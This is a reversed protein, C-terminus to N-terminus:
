RRRLPPSLSPNAPPAADPPNGVTIVTTTTAVEGFSNTVRLTLTYTGALAYTHTYTGTGSGPQSTTFSTIDGHDIFILLNGNEPTVASYTIAITLPLDPFQSAELKVTAPGAAVVSIALPASDMGGRGDSVTYTLQDPGAYAATPTYTLTSGSLSATGHQPPVSVGYSLPDGDADSALTALDLRVPTNRYTTLAGSAASPPHNLGIAWYVTEDFLRWGAASANVASDDSFFFAARRAPAAHGVMAAGSEYVFLPSAAPWPLAAVRTAAPAPAGYAMRGPSALAAVTDRLGAAVAIPHAPASITIATRPMTQGYDRGSIAGTLGLDDYLGHEWVVLPVATDRFSANIAASQVSSSILILAKGSADGAIVSRYDKVTVAFGAAQLRAQVKQDGPGLPVKAVLLAVSASPVSLSPPPVSPTASLIPPQVWFRVEGVVTPPAGALGYRVSDLGTYGVTPTYTLTGNAWGAVGHGPTSLLSLAGPDGAGPLSAVEVAKSTDRPLTLECRPVLPGSAPQASGSAMLLPLLLGNTAECPHDQALPAQPVQAAAPPSHAALLPLHQLLLFLLIFRHWRHRSRFVRRPQDIRLM